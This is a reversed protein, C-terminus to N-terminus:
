VGCVACRLSCMWGVMVRACGGLLRGRAVTIVSNNRLEVRVVGVQQGVFRLIHGLEVHCGPLLNLLLHPSSVAGLLATPSLAATPAWQRKAGVRTRRTVHTHERKSCWTEMAAVTPTNMAAVTSTNMAAVTPPTGHLVLTLQQRM